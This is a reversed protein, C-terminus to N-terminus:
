AMTTTPKCKSDTQFARTLLYPIWTSLGLPQHQSKKMQVLNLRKFDPPLPNLANGLLIMRNRIITGLLPPKPGKKVNRAIRIHSYLAM